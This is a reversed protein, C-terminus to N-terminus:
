TSLVAMVSILTLLLAGYSVLLAAMGAAGQVDDRFKWWCILFTTAAVVFAVIMGKM